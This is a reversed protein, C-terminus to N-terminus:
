EARKITGALSHAPNGYIRSKFMCDRPCSVEVYNESSAVQKARKLAANLSHASTTTRHHGFSFTTVHYNM